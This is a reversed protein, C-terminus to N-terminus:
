ETPVPTHKLKAKTGSEPANRLLSDKRAKQISSSTSAHHNFITSLPNNKRVVQNIDAIKKLHRLYKVRNEYEEM